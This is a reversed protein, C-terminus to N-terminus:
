SNGNGVGTIHYKAMLRKITDQRFEAVLAKLETQMELWIRECDDCRNPEKDIQNDLWERVQTDDGTNDHGCWDCRLIIM